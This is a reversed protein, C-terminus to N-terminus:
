PARGYVPTPASDVPGLTSAFWTEYSSMWSGDAVREELVANITEVLDVEDRHTAVGYPEASMPPGVVKAHPDQVALGALVTDDASIADVTRQQFKVLCDTHTRGPVITIGPIADLAEITTTQAAACVTRGELDGVGDIEDDRDVLLRQSSHLYEASFAVREWRNCTITYARAVIDVDDAELASARQRAELVVFELADPDGIVAEAIWSAVDVDFGVIERTFPDRSSLNVSDSSVGVRLHGRDRIEAMTSGPAFDEPEPVEGVPAYSATPDECAEGPEASDENPATSDATPAPPLPELPSDVAGGDATGTGTCGTLLALGILVSVTSRLRKRARRM